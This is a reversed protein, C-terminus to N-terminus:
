LIVCVVKFFCCTLSTVLLCGPDSCLYPFAAAWGGVRHCWRRQFGATLAVRKEGGVCPLRPVRRWRLGVTGCGLGRRCTCLADGHGREEVFYMSASCIGNQARFELRSPDVDAWFVLSCAPAWVVGPVDGWGGAETAASCRLRFFLPAPVREQEKRKPRTLQSRWFDGASLCVSRIEFASFRCCSFLLPVKGLADASGTKPSTLVGSYNPNLDGSFLNEHSSWFVVTNLKKLLFWSVYLHIQFPWVLSKM